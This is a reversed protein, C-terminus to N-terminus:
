LNLNCQSNDINVFAKCIEHPEFVNKEFNTSIRSEGQSMCCWTKINHADTHSINTQFADGQERLILVQKHKMLEKGHHDMMM